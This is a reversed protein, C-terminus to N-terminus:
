TNISEDMQRSREILEVAKYECKKANEKRFKSLRKKAAEEIEVPEENGKMVQTLPGQGDIRAPKTQKKKLECDKLSKIQSGAQGAKKM